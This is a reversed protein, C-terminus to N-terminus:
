IPKGDIIVVKGVVPQPVEKKKLVITVPELEESGVSSMDAKDMAILTTETSLVQYKFSVNEIEEKSASEKGL